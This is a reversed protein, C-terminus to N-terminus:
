PTPATETTTTSHTTLTTTVPQVQPPVVAPHLSLAAVAARAIAEGLSGTMADLQGQMRALKVDCERRENAAALRWTETEVRRAEFELHREHRESELTHELSVRASSLMDVTTQIGKVRSYAWTFSAFGGAGVGLSM